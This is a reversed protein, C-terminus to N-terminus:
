LTNAISEITACGKYIVGDMSIYVEYLSDGNGPINFECVKQEQRPTLGINNITGFVRGNESIFMAFFTPSMSRADSYFHIAYQGKGEDGNGFTLATLEDQTIRVSWFPEYGDLQFYLGQSFLADTFEKGILLGDQELQNQAKFSIVGEHFVKLEQKDLTIEGLFLFSEGSSKDRYVEQGYATTLLGLCLCLLSIIRM